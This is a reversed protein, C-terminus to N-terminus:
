EGRFRGASTKRAAKVSSFSAFDFHDGPRGLGHLDARDHRQGGPGGVGPGGYAEPGCVGLAFVMAACGGVHAYRSLWVIRCKPNDAKM